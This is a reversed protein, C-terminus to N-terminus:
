LNKKFLLVDIRKLFIVVSIPDRTSNVELVSINNASNLTNMAIVVRKNTM